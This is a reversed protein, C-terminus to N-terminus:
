EVVEEGTAKNDKASKKEEKIKEAILEKKAKKKARKDKKKANEKRKKVRKEARLVEEEQATSVAEVSKVGDAFKRFKAVYFGDMNHTHPYVRKTLKCSPHFRRERQKCIGNEGVELGTEVLKVYRNNLAYNVVGENEEM